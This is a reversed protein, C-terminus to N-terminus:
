KEGNVAEKYKLKHLFKRPITVNVSIVNTSIVNIGPIKTVM